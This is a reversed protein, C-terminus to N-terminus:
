VQQDDSACGPHHEEISASVLPRSQSKPALAKLKGAKIELWHGGELMRRAFHNAHIVRGGDAVLMLSYDVEDLVAAMLLWLSNGTSRREPGVYSIAETASELLLDVSSKDSKM